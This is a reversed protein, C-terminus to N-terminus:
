DKKGDVIFKEQDDKPDLIVVKTYKWSGKSNLLTEMYPALSAYNSRNMIVPDINSDMNSTLISQYTEILESLFVVLGFDIV